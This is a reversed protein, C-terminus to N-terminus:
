VSSSEHYRKRNILAALKEITGLNEPLLESNDVQVDFLRELEIVTRLIQLSNLVLLLNDDNGFTSAEEDTLYSEVIYRRITELTNMARNAFNSIV